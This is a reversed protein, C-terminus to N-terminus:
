DIHMDVKTPRGFRGAMNVAAVWFSEAQAPIPINYEGHNREWNKGSDTSVAFADFNFM